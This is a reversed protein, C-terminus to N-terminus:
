CKCVTSLSARGYALVLDNGTAAEPHLRLVHHRNPACGCEEVATRVWCSSGGEATLSPTLDLADRPWILKRHAAAGSLRNRVMVSGNVLREVKRELILFYIAVPM